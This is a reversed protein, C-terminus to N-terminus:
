SKSLAWIWIGGGVIGFIGFVIIAGPLKGKTPDGVRLSAVNPKKPNYYVEVSKGPSYNEAKSRALQRNASDMQVLALQSSTYKQGGVSYEYVVKPRVVYNFSNGIRFYGPQISSQLIKGTTKPWSESNLLSRRVAVGCISVALGGASCLGAFILAETDM